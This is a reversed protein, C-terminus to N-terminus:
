LSSLETEPGGGCSSKWAASGSCPQGGEHGAQGRSQLTLLTM